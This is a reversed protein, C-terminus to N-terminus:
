RRGPGGSSGHMSLILNQTELSRLSDRLREAEANKVVDQTAGATTIVLEKIECCCDAMQKSLQEKNRLAELQINAYNNAAQLQLANETKCLDLQAKGFNSAAQQALFSESKAIQLNTAAFHESEARRIKETNKDQHKDLHYLERMQWEHKRDFERGLLYNSKWVDKAVHHKVESLHNNIHGAKEAVLYDTKASQATGSQWNRAMEDSLHSFNNSLFAREEIQGASLASGLRHVNDEGARLGAMIENTSRNIASIGEFGNRNTTSVINETATTVASGLQANAIESAHVAQAGTREIASSLQAGVVESGHLAAAGTREVASGLQSGVRETTANLDSGIKQADVASRYIADLALSANRDIAGKIATTNLDDRYSVGQSDLQSAALIQATQDAQSKMLDDYQRNQEAYHQNSFLMDMKDPGSTSTSPVGYYYYNNGPTSNSAMTKTKISNVM